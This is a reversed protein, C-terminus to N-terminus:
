FHFQANLPTNLLTLEIKDGKTVPAVGEPTGTFIIDGESLGYTHSLYHIMEPLPFIMLTTDGRQRREGNLHLEYEIRNLDSVEHASIFQSVCASQPFCKSKSWPYGRSKEYDQVDRATLDIGVGVGEIISLAEEKGINRGDKGSLDGIYLLLEGEFHINESYPPLTIQEGSYALASPPKFFVLPETPLSNNLEEVHKVYNRGICFLTNVPRNEGNLQITAM